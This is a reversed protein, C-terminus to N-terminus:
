PVIRTEIVLPIGVEGKFAPMRLQRAVIAVGVVRERVTEVCGADATMDFVVFVFTMEPVLAFGAVTDDQPRLDVEVVGRVGVVGQAAGVLRNFALVAVDLRNEIYREIRAAVIAVRCVIGVLAFLADGAVIAVVLSRPLVIYKEVVIERSEREEARVGVDVAPVAMFGVDEAVCGLSADIAMQFVVRVFTSEAVVASGTVVGHVPRGPHEIMVHQGIERELARVLGNRALAAVAGVQGAHSPQASTAAITVTGIVNVVPLEAGVAPAAMAGVIEMVHPGDLSAAAVDIAVSASGHAPAAPRKAPRRGPL